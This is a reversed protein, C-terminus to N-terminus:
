DQIHHAFVDNQEMFIEKEEKKDTRLVELCCLNYWFFTKKKKVIHTPPIPCVQLVFPFNPKNQTQPTASLSSIAKNQSQIPNTKGHRHLPLNKYPRTPYSNANIQDNRLNPKNQMILNMKISKAFQAFQNAQNLSHRTSLYILLRTSLHKSPRGLGQM